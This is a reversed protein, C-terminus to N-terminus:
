VTSPRPADPNKNCLRVDLHDKNGVPRTAYEAASFLEPATHPFLGKVLERKDFARIKPPKVLVLVPVLAPWPGLSSGPRAVGWTGLCCSDPPRPITEESTTALTGTFLRHSLGSLLVRAM